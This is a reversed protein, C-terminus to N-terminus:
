NAYRERGINLIIGFMICNVIFSSGGYSIFPLPVGTVPLLGVVCGINLFVFFSFFILFATCVLSGFRDKANTAIVYIRYCIFTYLLIIIAALIFGGEEGIVSFIFDTHREPVFGLQIQTGSKLGKGLLGGSGIAIKSQIVNYGAGLRDLDPNFFVALRNKQYPKLYNNVIEGIWISFYTLGLFYTFFVKNVDKKLIKIAFYFLFIAISTILIFINLFTINNLFEPNYICLFSKMLPILATWFSFIFISYLYIKRIGAVLCIGFVVPFLVLIAGFDPQLFILFVMPFALLFIKFFTSFSKISRINKDLFVVLLLIFFIRAIETPQFSIIGLDIWSKAGKVTKGVFLVASLLFLAFIYLYKSINYYLNYNISSFLFLLIYGLLMAVAQKIFLQLFNSMNYSASYVFIIGLISIFFISVLLWIDINKSYKKIGKKVIM